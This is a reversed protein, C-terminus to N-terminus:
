DGPEARMVSRAQLPFPNPLFQSVLPIVLQVQYSITVDVKPGPTVRVVPPPKIGDAALVGNLRDAIFANIDSAQASPDRTADYRVSGFRAAEVSENTIVMWASMVRSMELTAFVIFLFVPAVLAFTTITAASQRHGM